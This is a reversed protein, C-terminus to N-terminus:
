EMIKTAVQVLSVMIHFLLQLALEPNKLYVNRLVAATNEAL